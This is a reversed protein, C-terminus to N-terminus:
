LGTVFVGCAGALEALCTTNFSFSAYTTGMVGAPASVFAPTGPALDHEFWDVSTSPFATAAVGICAAPMAARVAVRHWLGLPVGSLVAISDDVHIWAGGDLSYEYGAVKDILADPVDVWTVARVGYDLAYSAVNAVTVVAPTACGGSTWQWSVADGVNGVGDIGRVSLVYPVAPQLRSLTIVGVSSNVWPSSASSSVTVNVGNATVNTAGTAPLGSSQTQLRFQFLTDLPATSSLVFYATSSPTDSVVPPATLFAVTPPLQDVFWISTWPTTDPGHIGDFSRFEM